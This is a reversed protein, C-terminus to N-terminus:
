GLPVKIGDLFKQIIGQVGKETKAMIAHGYGYDADLEDFEVIAPDATATKNAALKRNSRIYRVMSRAREVPIVQDDQAHMVLIPLNVDFDESQTASDFFVKEDDEIAKEFFFRFLPKFWKWPSALSNAEIVLSIKEFPSELILARPTKNQRSIEAALYSSVGTGMSHGYIVIRSKPVENSVYTFAALADKVVGAVSPKVSSSDGYFRYDIALVGANYWDSLKKMTKIRNADGRDGKQGHNYVFMLGSKPFMGRLDTTPFPCKDSAINGQSPPVYWAGIRVDKESDIFFSQACNLGYESPNSLNGQIPNKTNTGFILVRRLAPSWKFVMPPIMYLLV